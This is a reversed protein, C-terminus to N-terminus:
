KSHFRLQHIRHACQLAAEERELRQPYFGRTYQRREIDPPLDPAIPLQNRHRLLQKRQPEDRSDKRERCGKM